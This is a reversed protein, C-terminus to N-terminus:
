PNGGWRVRQFREVSDWGLHLPPGGGVPALMCLREGLGRRVLYRRGNPALWVDGLRFRTARPAGEDHATFAAPMPKDYQSPHGFRRVGAQMSKRLSDDFRARATSM